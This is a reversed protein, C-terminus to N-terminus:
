IITNYQTFPFVDALCTLFSILDFSKHNQITMEPMERWSESPFTAIQWGILQASNKTFLGSSIPKVTSIPFQNQQVSAEYIENTQAMGHLSLGTLPYLHPFHVAAKRLSLKGAPTPLTKDALWYFLMIIFWFVQWARKSKTHMKSDSWLCLM